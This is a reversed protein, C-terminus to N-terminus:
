HSVSLVSFVDIFLKLPKPILGDIVCATIESIHLYRRGFPFWWQTTYFLAHMIYMLMHIRCIAHMFIILIQIYIYIYIYIHKRFHTNMWRSVLLKYTKCGHIIFLNPRYKQVWRVEVIDKKIYGFFSRILRLFLVLEKSYWWFWYEFVHSLLQRARIACTTLDNPIFGFTPFELEGRDRFRRCKWLFMREHTSFSHQQGSVTLM